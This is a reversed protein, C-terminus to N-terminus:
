NGEEYKQNFAEPDEQFQKVLNDQEEISQGKEPKVVEIEAGELFEGDGTLVQSGATGGGTEGFALYIGDEGSVIESLGTRYIQEGDKTKFRAEM